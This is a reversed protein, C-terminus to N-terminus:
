EILFQFEYVFELQCLIMFFSQALPQPVKSDCTNKTQFSEFTNVGFVMFFPYSVYNEPM